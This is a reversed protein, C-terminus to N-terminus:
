DIFLYMKGKSNSATRMHLFRNKSFGLKQVLGTGSGANGGQIAAYVTKRCFIDSTHLIFIVGEYM